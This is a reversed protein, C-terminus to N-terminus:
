SFKLKLYSETILCRGNEYTESFLYEFVSTSDGWLIMIKTGDFSITIECDFSTNMENQQIQLLLKLLLLM